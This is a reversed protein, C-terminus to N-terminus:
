FDIPIEKEESEWAMVTKISGVTVINDCRKLYDKVEDAKWMSDKDTYIDGLIAKFVFDEGNLAIHISYDAKMMLNILYDVFKNQDENELYCVTNVKKM